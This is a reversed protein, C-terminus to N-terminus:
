RPTIMGSEVLSREYARFKARYERVLDERTKPRDARLMDLWRAARAQLEAQDDLRRAGGSARLMRCRADESPLRDAVCRPRWRAGPAAPAAGTRRRHAGAVARLADEQAASRALLPGFQIWDRAM